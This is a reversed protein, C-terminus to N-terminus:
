SKRARRWAGPSAGVRARFARALHSQESFGCAAAIEDLAMPSHLLLRKAREIRAALQYQHPPLGVSSRFARSFHSASLGALAALQSLSVDEALNQEMFDIVRRLQWPALGGRVQRPESVPALSHNRLVAVTLALSLSEAYLRSHRLPAAIEAYLAEVLQRELPQRIDVASQLELSRRARDGMDLRELAKPTIAVAFRDMQAMGDPAITSITDGAAILNLLWGPHKLVLDGRRGNRKIVRRSEATRTLFLTNMSPTISLEHPGTPEKLILDGIVGDWDASARSVIGTHRRALAAVEVPIEDSYVGQGM